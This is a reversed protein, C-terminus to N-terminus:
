TDGWGRRYEPDRSQADVRAWRRQAEFCAIAFAPDRNVCTATLGLRRQEAWHAAGARGADSLAAFWRQHALRDERGRDHGSPEVAGSFKPTGDGPAVREAIAPLRPRPATTAAGEWGPAHASPQRPAPADARRQDPYPHPPVSDTGPLIVRVGMSRLDDADLWAMRANATTVMRGIIAPPVGYRAVERAMATTFAMSDHTEGDTRHAASHVGVRSTPFVMRVPSAAFALFCASACMGRAPVVVPLRHEAVVRALRVGELLSGGPSSVVLAVDRDATDLHARLRQADGPQIDGRAEVLLRRPTEAVRFEMAAAPLPALLAALLAAPVGRM